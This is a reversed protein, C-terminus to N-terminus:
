GNGAKEDELLQRMVGSMGVAPLGHRLRLLNLQRAEAITLPRLGISKMFDDIEAPAPNHRSQVSM